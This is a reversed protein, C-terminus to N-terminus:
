ELVEVGVGEFFKGKLNVIVRIEIITRPTPFFDSILSVPRGTPFGM